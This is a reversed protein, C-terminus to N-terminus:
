GYGLTSYPKWFRTLCIHYTSIRILTSELAGRSSVVPVYLTLRITDQFQDSSQGSEQASEMAELLCALGEGHSVKQDNDRGTWGQM